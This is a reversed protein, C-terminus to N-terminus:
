SLVGPFNNAIRSEAIKEFESAIEKVLKAPENNAPLLMLRGNETVKAPIDNLWDM